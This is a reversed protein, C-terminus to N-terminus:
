DQLKGRYGRNGGTPEQLGLTAPNESSSSLEQDIAKLMQNDRQIQIQEEPLDQSSASATEAVPVVPGRGNLTADTRFQHHLIPVAVSLTLVATLGAGLAFRQRWSAAARRRAEQLGNLPLTASRRESWALSVARFGVLPAEMETLARKCPMCASLHAMSEPAADGILVLELEDETLHHASIKMTDNM